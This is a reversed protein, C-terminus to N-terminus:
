LCVLRGMGNINTNSGQFIHGYADIPLYITTFKVGIGVCFIVNCAKCLMLYARIGTPTANNKDGYM